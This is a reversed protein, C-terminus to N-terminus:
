FPKIWIVKGNMKNMKQRVVTLEVNIYSGKLGTVPTQFSRSDFQRQGKEDKLKRKIFEM